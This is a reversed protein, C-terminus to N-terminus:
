PKLVVISEGQPKASWRLADGPMTLQGGRPDFAVVGAGEPLVAVGDRFTFVAAPSPSGPTSPAFLVPIDGTVEADRDGVAFLQDDSTSWAAVPGGQPADVPASTVLRGDEASFVLLRSSQPADADARRLSVAAFYKGSPSWGVPHITVVDDPMEGSVGDGAGRENQFFVKSPNAGKIVSVELFAVYGGPGKWPMWRSETEDSPKSSPDRVDWVLLQQPKADLGDGYVDASSDRGDDPVLWVRPAEPEVAVLRYGEVVREKNTTRDWVGVKTTGPFQAVAYRGGGAWGVAASAEASDDTPAKRVPEDGLRADKFLFPSSLVFISGAVALAFLVLIVFIVPRWRDPRTTGEGGDQEPTEPADTRDSM